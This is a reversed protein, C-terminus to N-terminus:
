RQLRLLAEDGLARSLHVGGAGGPHALVERTM